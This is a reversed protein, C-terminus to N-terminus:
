IESLKGLGLIDLGLYVDSYLQSWPLFRVLHARGSPRHLSIRLDEIM